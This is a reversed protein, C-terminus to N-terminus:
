ILLLKMVFYNGVNSQNDCEVIAHAVIPNNIISILM